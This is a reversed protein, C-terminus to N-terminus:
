DRQLGEYSVLAYGGEWTKGFTQGFQREQAGDAAGGVRLRTEAGEFDRRLVVNVVGGVADSGYLASAGDLLIETREVAATPIASVDAFDGKSGSGGMRRGN